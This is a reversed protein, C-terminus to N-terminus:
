TNAENYGRLKPIFFGALAPTLITNNNIKKLLYTKKIAIDEKEKILVVIKEMLDKEKKSLSNIEKELNEKELNEKELNDKELNEKESKEKKIKKTIDFALQILFITVYVIFMAVMCGVIFIQQKIDKIEADLKIYKFVLENIISSISLIFILSSCFSYINLNENPYSNFFIFISLIIILVNVIVFTYDNDYTNKVLELYSPSLLMLLPSLLSILGLIIIIFFVSKKNTVENSKM